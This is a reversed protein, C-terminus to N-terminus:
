TVIECISRQNHITLPGCLEQLYFLKYTDFLINLFHFHFYFCLNFLYKGQGLKLVNPTDLNHNEPMRKLEDWFLQYQQIETETQDSLYPNWFLLYLPTGRPGSYVPLSTNVHTSKAQECGLTSQPLRAQPSYHTTQTAMLAPTVFLNVVCHLKSCCAHLLGPQMM